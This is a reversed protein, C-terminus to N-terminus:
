YPTRCVLDTALPLPDHPIMTQELGVQAPLYSPDLVLADNYRDEALQWHRECTHVRALLSMTTPNPDLILSETLMEVAMSHNDNAALALGLLELSQARRAWERREEPTTDLRRGARREISPVTALYAIFDTEAGDWDGTLARATGRLYRVEGHEEEALVHSFDHIATKYDEFAMAARGRLIHSRSDKQTLVNRSEDFRELAYLTQSRVFAIEPNDRDHAEAADLERLAAEYEGDDLLRLATQVGQIAARRKQRADDLRRSSRRARAGRCLRQIDVAARTWKEKLDKRDMQM